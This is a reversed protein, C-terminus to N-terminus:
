QFLHLLTTCHSCSLMVNYSYDLMQLADAYRIVFGQPFSLCHEGTAHMSGYPGSLLACVLAWHWALRYVRRSCCRLWEQWSVLANMELGVALIQSITWAQSDRWIWGTLMAYQSTSISCIKFDSKVEQVFGGLCSASTCSPYLYRTLRLAIVAPVQCLLHGLYWCKLHCRNVVNLNDSM